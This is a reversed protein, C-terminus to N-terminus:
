HELRQRNFSPVHQYANSDHYSKGTHRPPVPLSARVHTTFAPILKPFGSMKFIPQLSTPPQIPHIPTSPSNASNHHEIVTTFFLLLPPQHCTRNCHVRFRSEPVISDVGCLSHNAGNSKRAVGSPPISVHPILSAFASSTGKGPCLLQTLKGQGLDFNLPPYEFCAAKETLHRPNKSGIDWTM